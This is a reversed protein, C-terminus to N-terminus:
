HHRSKIVTSRKQTALIAARVRDPTAPVKHIRAGTADYIANLIAPATPILALEGVGKKGLPGIPSEVEILISEIPPLDGASPIVCDHLNESRGPHFEEMLAFGLGQAIGGEIQGEVLTPNIAKGVDYAATVKVLRVTGLDQDVELEVMHAGFGYLSYPAGQGNEDLSTTPPDFTEEVVLAYGRQDLPLESLRIRHEISDDNVTVLGPSFTIRAHEGANTMRLINRRLARGALEAAKGTVFTQRSASTKGCDPTLDTDPPVLDFCTIPSGLADACIQTIVTNSGQGIDVGGQHLSLRGNPKLGLRITSPNSLSTNGCGYWIGAVGVGRVLTRHINATDAEHRARAWHPRLSELCQRIGVGEKLIQGTVTSQNADLANLIRFELRDLGLKDALEDYLQEQAIVAQPVGFGRFAGAPVLHTHVALTLARYNPVSYPGSAHIPVREAVTPGWSAYAGTNFEGYFDLGLIKGDRSAGARAWIKAPHRKTTTMISESRSYAMRVPRDLLWAALAIFPQVSLDIKSGFGGGVATPVIRVRDPEIGLIKAIDARILYPAQTCVHVEIRDGMRQAYGAEPEVYAHEVFSTEFDGEVVVDANALAADIDGRVVRGRVLVNEARKPHILEAGGAQSAATTTLATLEEWAVPFDDLILTNISADGVVAAIAEGLFRTETEAFVPQDAFAPIAGYCNEGPVDKATFIRVIGPHAAVFAPLDGLTFRAHHYPSRVARVTLACGPSQDAGFVESGNVKPIGDIRPIRQGIAAGATPPDIKPGEKCFELVAKVIKRYGTCRCLVGGMAAIVDAESPEKDAVLLATAAILM